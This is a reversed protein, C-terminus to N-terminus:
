LHKKYKLEKLELERLKLELKQKQLQIREFHEREERAEKQKSIEFTKRAYRGIDHMKEGLGRVVKLLKEQNLTQQKLMEIRENERVDANVVSSRVRRRPTAEVESQLNEEEICNESALPASISNSAGHSVGEPNAARELGLLSDVEQELPSLTLQRYPGGGTAISESRNLAIKRKLKLKYDLWVKNWGRGDRVPPGLANLQVSLQKWLEATDKKNSGFAGLGRAVDPHERMMQVMKGFERANTKKM